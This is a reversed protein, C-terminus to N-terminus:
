VIMKALVSSIAPLVPSRNPRFHVSITPRTMKPVPDNAHECTLVAWANIAIRAGPKLGRSQFWAALRVSLTDLDGYTLSKGMCVFAPKERNKRFSEELLETVSDFISADIDAPVGAPYQKLWIREM